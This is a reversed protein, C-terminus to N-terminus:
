QSADARGGEDNVKMTEDEEGALAEDFFPASIFGDPTNDPGARKESPKRYSRPKLDGLAIEARTSYKNFWSKELAAKLCAEYAEVAGAEIASAQEELGGKYVEEVEYTLGSPVPSNRIDDAFSQSVFGIRYLAALTWDPRNFKFVDFYITRAEGLLKIKEELRKKLLKEPLKLKIKEFELLKAEGLYFLAQAAADAGTDLENRQNERLGEYIKLVRNFEAIADKHKRNEWYIRGIKVHSELLRDMRGVKGWKKIYDKYVDFAAREEGTQEYIVAIQFFVEACKEKKQPFLKLYQKYADIAKDYEGLGQRFTASNALAQEAKEHQPFNQFFLEYFYSAESYVALAHYNGAISFLTEPALPSSSRVTLLGKRVRIAKGIQRIREYDLAANYLAKDVLESDPFRTYFDTFCKAAPEWAEKGELDNCKKFATKEAIGALRAQFPADRGLYENAMYAQVAEDLAAYNQMLYLSDLTLDAAIVALQHDPYSDIIKNFRAIADEFHNHDYMIRAATYEVKVASKAEPALAIYRDCAAVLRAQIAPVEKKAPVGTPVKDPDLEGSPAERSVQVLKQLSLVSAHVAEETYQGKPKLRLVEEYMDASEDFKELRYLLEAYFFSMAYRDESGPYHTLYAKYLEYSLAYTEDNRTKQAERHYTTAYERLILELREKNRAVAGAEADKFKEALDLLKIARLVERVTEIKNGKTEINRVIELQYDVIKFSKSNLQILKKFLATSQDAKGEDGYLQALREGMFMVDSQNKVLRQFFPIAKSAKGIHSYTLVIDKLAEKRLPADKKNRETEKVVDVFTDMAKDYRSNNYECWALKYLAYSFVNSKPYERVKSFAKAAAVMDDNEFYYEGFQLLVQPMFPSDPYKQVLERYITLAQTRKGIEILNNGLFFYVRDLQAFAPHNNIIQVYIRVAEERQRKSEALEDQMRRKLREAGARDKRDEAGYMEDQTAFAQQEYYKSKQWLLESLQFLLEPKEPDNDETADILESLLRIAEDRKQQQGLKLERVDARAKFQPGAQEVKKRETKERKFAKVETEVKDEDEQAHVQPSVVLGTVLLAGALMWAGLWSGTDYSKVGYRKTLHM